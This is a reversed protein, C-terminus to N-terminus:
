LDRPLRREDKPAREYASLAGEIFEAAADSM